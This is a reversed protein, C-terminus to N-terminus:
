REPKRLEEQENDFLKIQEIGADQKLLSKENTSFEPLEDIQKALELRNIKELGLFDSDMAYVKIPKAFAEKPIPPPDVIDLQRGKMVREIMLSVKAVDDVSKAMLTAATILNDQKESYVNRLVQKSLQTDRYCYELMDYYIQKAKYKSVEETIILDKIIHEETGYQRIRLHMGHVRDLLKLYRVIEEPANEASGNEMFSYIDQIDIDDINVKNAM